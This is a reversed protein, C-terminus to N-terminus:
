GGGGGGGGSIEEVRIWYEITRRNSYSLHTYNCLFHKSVFFYLCCCVLVYSSQLFLFLKVGFYTAASSGIIKTSNSVLEVVRSGIKHEISDIRIIVAAIVPLFKKLM